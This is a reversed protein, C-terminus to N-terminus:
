FPLDNDEYDSEFDAKSNSKKSKTKSKPKEDSKDEDTEIGYVAYNTYSQKKEKDYYKTVECSTIKISVGKKEPIAMQSIVDHATGIFRVFGEQFDTEYNGTDKNKKSTTVNCISYKGKNEASWVRAFAGQRFGM